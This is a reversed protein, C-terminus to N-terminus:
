CGPLISKLIFVTVLSMSLCDMFIFINIWSSFIGDTFVYAGLM